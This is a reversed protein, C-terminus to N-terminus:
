RFPNTFYLVITLFFIQNSSIVAYLWPRIEKPYDFYNLAVIASSISLFFCWLLMSGDMGGWIASIRYYWEMDVNSYQWVYQNSYDSIYFLYALVSISFATFIFTSVVARAVSRSLKENGSK